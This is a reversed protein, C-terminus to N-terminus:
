RPPSPTAVGVNYPAPTTITNFGEGPIQLFNVALVSYKVFIYTNNIEVPPQTLLAFNLLHCKSVTFEV